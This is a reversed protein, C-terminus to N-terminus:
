LVTRLELQKIRHYLRSNEPVSIHHKRACNLLYGTIYDIETKRQFFIDQQMSSYNDSTAVIVQDIQKHLNDPNFDLGEANTILVIEDILRKIIPIFHPDRLAGNNCQEIATLPNIVCNISLKAWLATKIHHNWCVEPLAHHFVDAIFECQQGKANVAGIQTKGHGTHLVHTATSKYAGHTTTAMLLPFRTVSEGLEDIAGMGNHMLMVMTEPTLHPIIPSLASAVQWVKTTVLVLDASTLHNLNNHHLSIENLDDLTLRFEDRNSHLWVSVNHGAQHLSYAWLSGIAGPGIIVINM